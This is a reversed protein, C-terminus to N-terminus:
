LTGAGIAHRIAGPLREREDQDERHQEDRAVLDALIAGAPPRHTTGLRSPALPSPSGDASRGPLGRYPKAWFAVSAPRRLAM